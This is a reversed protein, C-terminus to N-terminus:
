REVMEALSRWAGLAQALGMQEEAVRGPPPTCPRHPEQAVRAAHRPLRRYYIKAAVPGKAALQKAALPPSAPIRDDSHDGRLM